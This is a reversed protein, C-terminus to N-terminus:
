RAPTTPRALARRPCYENLDSIILESMKATRSEDFKALGYDIIKINSTKGKADQIFIINRAYFDGHVIDNDHLKQIAELILEWEFPTPCRNLAKLTKGKLTEMVMYFCVKDDVKEEPKSCSGIWADYVRPGVGLEGAYTAFLFERLLSDPDPKDVPLIIQKVVVDGHRKKFPVLSATGFAGKGIVKARDWDLIGQFRSKNKSIPFLKNCIRALDKLPYSCSPSLNAVEYALKQAKRERDAIIEEEPKEGLMISGEETDDEMVILPRKFM